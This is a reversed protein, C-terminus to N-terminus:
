AIESANPQQLLFDEPYGMMWAAFRHSSETGPKLGLSNLITYLGDGGTPSAGVRNYNGSVTITPLLRRLKGRAHTGGDLFYSAGTSGSRAVPTPLLLGCEKETTRPVLDPLRFLTGSRIMGSRPWSGSFTDRGDGGGAGTLLDASNELVLVSPRLDGVLRIIESYLGTRQGHIGIRKGAASIDQCPFGGTIVDIDSITDSRLDRVDAVIPVNPWVAKLDAQRKPNVECFLVTEFGGTRELGLSFGGIGSFLDIVRLKRM